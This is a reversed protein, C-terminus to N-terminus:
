CHSARTHVWIYTVSCSLRGPLPLLAKCGDQIVMPPDCVKVDGLLEPELTRDVFCITTIFNCPQTVLVEPLLGREHKTGLHCRILKIMQVHNIVLM